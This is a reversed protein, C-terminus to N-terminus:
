PIEHNLFIFNLLRRGILSILIICVHHGFPSSPVRFTKRTLPPLILTEQGSEYDGFIIVM